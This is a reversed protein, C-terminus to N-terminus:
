SRQMSRADRYFIPSPVVRGHNRECRDTYLTRM